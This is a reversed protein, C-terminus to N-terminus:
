CRRSTPSTSARNASPRADKDHDHYGLARAGLEALQNSRGATEKPTTSVHLESDIEEQYQWIREEEGNQCIGHENRWLEFVDGPTKVSIASNVVTTGGVVSAQVVPWFARGRTVNSNWDDMLDRMSGVMSNPYDHPHRWPGAEVLVVSAGGRALDVAATAGGAGSGVVVYDAEQETLPQDASQFAVHNM